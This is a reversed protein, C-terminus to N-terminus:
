KSEDNSVFGLHNKNIIEKIIGVDYSIFPVLPWVEFVVLPNYEIRSGFIFCNSGALAHAVDIRKKKYILNIKKQKNM